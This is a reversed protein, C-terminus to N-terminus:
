KGEPEEIYKIMWKEVKRSLPSSPRENQAKMKAKRHVDSNLYFNFRKKIGIENENKM